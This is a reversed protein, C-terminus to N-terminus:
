SGLRLKWVTATGVAGSFSRIPVAGKMLQRFASDGETFSSQLYTRWTIAYTAANVCATAEEVTCWPQQILDGISQETVVVRDPPIQTAAYQQVQALTNVSFVPVTLLFSGLGAVTAAAMAAGRLARRWQWQALETWLFCYAPILILAFYQPFKLTSFGFVVMGTVLWSFLLANGQVPKWSRDRCCQVIRYAVIFFAVLALVASPIFFKYQAALLHLASGLSTLTGGSHQLGLVRRVQTTSQGIYYDYGRPDFLVVMVVVYTVILSLATGLLILHGKHARRMILWCVLVALLVYVGTQKFSATFGVAAGAIAFRQWSQREIARQYMLFSAVVLLMLTNEIYSAREIYILWGDFIVPIIAFLAVASGHIKWLLRFLAVQMAATMIVGLLRASYISAGIIDFWRSLLLFYFPPQYLFPEPPYVGFVSHETLLGHQVNVSVRYYVAEDWLWAPSVGLHWLRLGTGVVLATIFALTSLLVLRRQRRRWPYDAPQTEQLGDTPFVTVPNVASRPDSQILNTVLGSTFVLGLTIGVVPYVVSELSRSRVVQHVAIVAACGLILGAVASGYGYATAATASIAGLCAALPLVIAQRLRRKALPSDTHARIFYACGRSSRRYERVLPRWGRRHDHWGFLDLCVRIQYGAKTVRWFWEYDEYSGHSWSPDIPCRKYLEPTFLVNALIPPKHGRIGFDSSTVTYSEKIRPTKAGIWTSDTYRGWFSDHLSKMGGTVCSAGSEKLAAVARSMWDPPLVIDSDVLAVLEGSTMRVAADRKFNADRVGPPTEVEWISVRPDTIGALGNWTSDGPSGILTIERICPYDQHLLSQVAAAITNENGRCPIVISVEPLPHKRVLMPAAPTAPEASQTTGPIFVLRDGAVYNVVTFVATLVINAILYNMGLRILGAYLALNLAITVTKQLNFRAFALWFPTGRDRWTLWRNLLFSAEVSVVAQIAYSVVPPVHWSGTLVAQLGLGMLFVFGGIASFLVFRAGRRDLYAPRPAAHRGHRTPSRGGPVKSAIEGSAAVQESPFTELFALSQKDYAPAGDLRNGTQMDGISLLVQLGEAQSAASENSILKTWFERRANEREQATL